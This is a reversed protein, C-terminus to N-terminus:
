AGSARWVASTGIILAGGVGVYGCAPTIAVLGAIVGSCAGLLSPKSRLAWEGFTWSLM